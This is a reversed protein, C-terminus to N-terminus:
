HKRDLQKAKLYKCKLHTFPLCTTGKPSTFDPSWTLLFDRQKPLPFGVAHFFSFSDRPNLYVSPQSPCSQHKLHEERVATGLQSSRRQTAGRSERGRCVPPMWCGWLVTFDESSKSSPIPGPLGWLFELTHATNVDWWQTGSFTRSGFRFCRNSSCPGVHNPQFTNAKIYVSMIEVYKSIECASWKLSSLYDTSYM